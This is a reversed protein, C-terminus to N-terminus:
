MRQNIIDIAADVVDDFRLPDADPANLWGDNLPQIHYTVYCPGIGVTWVGAQAGEYFLLSDRESEFPLLAGSPVHISKAPRSFQRMDCDLLASKNGLILHGAWGDPSKSQSHIHHVGISWADDPADEVASRGNMVNAMHQAWESNGVIADVVVPLMPIRLRDCVRMGITTAMICRHPATMMCADIAEPVATAVEELMKIQEDNM